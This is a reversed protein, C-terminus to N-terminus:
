PSPQFPSFLFTTGSPWGRGRKRSSPQAKGENTLRDLARTLHRSLYHEHRLTAEKLEEYTVDQASYKRYLEAAYTESHMEDFQTDFLFQQNPNTIDSYDFAGSPDVAWMAQKMVALGRAHHTVYVLYYATQNHRNRMRFDRVHLNGVTLLGQIYTRKLCQEKEQPDSIALCQRWDQTGCPRDVEGHRGRDPLVWQNLARLNLTILTESTPYRLIRQVACMSFGSHGFPDIFVLAPALTWDLQETM